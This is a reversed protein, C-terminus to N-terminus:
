ALRSLLQQRLPLAQPVVLKEWVGLGHQYEPLNSPAHSLARAFEGEYDRYFYHRAVEMAIAVSILNAQAELGSIDSFFWACSTYARRVLRHIEMLAMAERCQQGTLTPFGDDRLYQDGTIEGLMVHVYNDRAQWPHRFYYRGRMDMLDDAQAQLKDLAARLPQRWRQHWDGNDKCGCDSRWREIGGGMGHECSWSSNDHIKVEWAPPNASLFSAYNTWSVDQQWNMLFTLYALCQNGEKHWHGFSEGDTGTSVLQNHTRGPDFGSLLRALFDDGKNLLGEFAIAQSIPGDYFFVSIQAGSPLCCLYARSPDVRGTEWANDASGLPRWKRAQRPALLVWNIGEAAAAELTDEDVACEPLWLGSTQRAFHHRFAAKGWRIETTKHRYSDLPLITHHYSQGIAGGHGFAAISQRDGEAMQQILAQGEPRKELQHLLTPGVDFSAHAYLNVDRHRGNEDLYSSNALPAYCERFVRWTWNHDPFASPEARGQRDPQYLHLHTTLFRETM